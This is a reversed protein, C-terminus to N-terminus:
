YRNTKPNIKPNTVEKIDHKFLPYLITSPPSPVLDSHANSPESKDNFNTYEEDYMFDIMELGKKLEKEPTSVKNSLNTNPSAATLPSTPLLISSPNDAITFQPHSQTEVPM